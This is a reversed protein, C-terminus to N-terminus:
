LGSEVAGGLCCFAVDAVSGVCGADAGGEEGGLAVDGVCGVYPFGEAGDGVGFEDFGGVADGPGVYCTVDGM